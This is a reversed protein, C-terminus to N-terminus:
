RSLRKGSRVERVSGLGSSEDRFLRQRQGCLGQRPLVLHGYEKESVRQEGKHNRSAWSACPIVGETPRTQRSGAFLTRM